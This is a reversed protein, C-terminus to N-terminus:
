KRKLLSISTDIKIFLSAIKSIENDNSLYIPYNKIDKLVIFPIANKQIRMQMDSYFFHFLYFYVFYINKSFHDLVYTRQYANFLGQVFHVYGMNAGNGAITLAPGIFDYFNIKYINVGSTYFNYKGYEVANNVDIKGTQIKTINGISDQFWVLTNKLLFATKEVYFLQNKSCFWLRKLLSISDNFLEIFKSIKQMELSDTSLYFNINAMVNNMLKPI